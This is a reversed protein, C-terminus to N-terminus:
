FRIAVQMTFLADAVDGAPLVRVRFDYRNNMRLTTQIGAAMVWNGITPVGRNKFKNADGPYHAFGFFLGARFKLHESLELLEADMSTTIYASQTSLSNKYQGIELAFEGDARGLEAALGIGIGPNIENFKRDANLHHSGLNVAVHRHIKPLEYAAIPLASCIFVFLFVISKSVGSFM